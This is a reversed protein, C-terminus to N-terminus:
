HSRCVACVGLMAKRCREGFSPHRLGTNPTQSRADSEPVKRWLFSTTFWHKSNSESCRKGAGEELAQLKCIARDSLGLQATTVSASTPQERACLKVSLPWWPKQTKQKMVNLSLFTEDSHKLKRSWWLIFSFFSFFYYFFFFFASQWLKQSNLKVMFAHKMFSVPKQAKQKMVFPSLCTEDAIALTESNEAEDCFSILM